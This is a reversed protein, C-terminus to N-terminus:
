HYRFIRVTFSSYHQWSKSEKLKDPDNFKNSSLLACWKKGEAAFNVSVCLPHDLWKLICEFDDYPTIIDIRPVNLYHYKDVSLLNQRSNQGYESDFNTRTDTPQLYNKFTLINKVTIIQPLFTSVGAVLFKSHSYSVNKSLNKGKVRSVASILITEIM